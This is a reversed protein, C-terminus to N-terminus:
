GALVQLETIPWQTALTGCFSQSSGPHFQVYNGTEVHDIGPFGSVTHYISALYLQFLSIEFILRKLPSSYRDQQTNYIGWTCKISSNHTSANLDERKKHFSPNFKLKLIDLLGEWSMSYCSTNKHQLLDAGYSLLYYNRYHESLNWFM